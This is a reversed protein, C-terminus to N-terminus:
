ESVMHVQHNTLPIFRNIFDNMKLVYSQTNVCPHLVISEQKLVEKDIYLSVNNDYDFILGLPSVAGPITHLLSELLESSAFSLRSSGIKKAFDSLSIRGDGKTLLMYYQKHRNALLLTKCPSIGLHEIVDIGDDITFIPKHSYRVYGIEKEHLFDAIEQDPSM